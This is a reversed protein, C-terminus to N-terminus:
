GKCGFKSTPIIIKIKCIFFSPSPSGLENMFKVFKFSTYDPVWTERVRFAIKDGVLLSKNHGAKHKGRPFNVNMEITNNAYDQILKCLM